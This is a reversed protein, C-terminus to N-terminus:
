RANNQTKNEKGDDNGEHSNWLMDDFSMQKNSEELKWKQELESLSTDKM